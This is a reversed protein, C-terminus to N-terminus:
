QADCQEDLGDAQGALNAFIGGEKGLDDFSRMLRQNAARAASQDHRAAAVFVQHFAQFLPPISRELSGRASDLARVYARQVDATCIRSGPSPSGCARRHAPYLHALLQRDRDIARFGRKLDAYAAAFSARNRAENAAVLRHYAQALGPIEDRFIAVALSAAKRYDDLVQSVCSAAVSASESVKTGTSSGSCGSLLTLCAISALGGGILGTRLTRKEM